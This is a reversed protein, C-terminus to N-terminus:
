EVHCVVCNRGAHKAKYLAQDAKSILSDISSVTKNEEKSAVGLSITVHVPEGNVKIPNEQVLKRLREALLEASACSMEPLLLIFEEGGYRASIDVERTMTRLLAGIHVLVKDGIDHGYTDNVDKFLDIDFIIVSLPRNYRSAKSFEKEAIEFFYRRNFLGTLFDTIAQYQLEALTQKRDTIENSLKLVMNELEAEVRKREVMERKSEKLAATLTNVFFSVIVYALILVITIDLAIHLPTGIMPLLRQSTELFALWWIAGISLATYSVAAWRGLLTAASIIVLIYIMLAVDHIGAAYRGFFTITGWILSLQLFSVLNTKGMRTLIFAPVQILAVSFLIWSCDKEASTGFQGNFYYFTITFSFIIVTSYHLLRAHRTKESQGEFVPPYLFRRISNWM